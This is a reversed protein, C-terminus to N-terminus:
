DGKFVPTAWSLNQQLTRQLSINIAKDVIMEYDIKKDGLGTVLQLIVLDSFRKEDGGLPSYKVSDDESNKSLDPLFDPWTM